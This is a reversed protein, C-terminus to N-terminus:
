GLAFLVLLPMPNNTVISKRAGPEHHRHKEKCRTTKYRHNEKVGPSGSAAGRGQWLFPAAPSILSVTGLRPHNNEISKRAGATKLSTQTSRWRVGGGRRDCTRRDGSGGHFHRALVESTTSRTTARERIFARSHRLLPHGGVPAPTDQSQRDIQPVRRVAITPRPCGAWNGPHPAPQRCVPEVQTAEPTPVAV